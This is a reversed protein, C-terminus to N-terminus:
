LNYLLQFVFEDVTLTHYCLYNSLINMFLSEYQLSSLYQFLLPPPNWPVFTSIEQFRRKDGSGFSELVGVFPSPFFIWGRCLYSPKHTGQFHYISRVTHNKKVRDDTTKARPNEARGTAGRPWQRGDLGISRVHLM